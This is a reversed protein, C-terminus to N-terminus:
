AWLYLGLVIACASIIWVHFGRRLPEMAHRLEMFYMGVIHAKAFLVIIMAATAATMSDLGASHGSDGAGLWWSVGTLLMLALWAGVVPKEKVYTLM